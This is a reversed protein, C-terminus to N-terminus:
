NNKAQLIALYLEINFSGGKEEGHSSCWWNAMDIITIAKM